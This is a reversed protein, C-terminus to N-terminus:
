KCKHQAPSPNGNSTFNGDKITYEEKANRNYMARITGDPQKMMGYERTEKLGPFSVRLNLMGNSSVAAGVVQNEDKVDGFNRRHVVRGGPAVEYALVAGKGKDPALSCDLAWSGILGWKSATQAVTEASADRALTLSFALALALGALLRKM